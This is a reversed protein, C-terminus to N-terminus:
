VEIAETLDDDKIKDNGDFEVAAIAPREQVHVRLYLEGATQRLDVEVDDFFGSRWLERVDRRLVATVFPKGVKVRLYSNVDSAAIRRNGTIDIRKVILGEAASLDDTPLTPLPVDDPHLEAEGDTTDEPSGGELPPPTETGPPAAEAATTEGEASADGSPSDGPEDDAAPAAEPAPPEPAPTQSFAAQVWLLVCLVVAGLRM